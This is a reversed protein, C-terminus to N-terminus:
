NGMGGSVGERQGRDLLERAGGPSPPVAPAPHSFGRGLQLYSIQGRCACLAREGHVERSSSRKGGPCAATNGGLTPLM